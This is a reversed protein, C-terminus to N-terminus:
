SLHEVEPDQSLRGKAEQDLKINYRKLKRTLTTINMGLLRAARRQRGGTEILASLILEAEFHQVEAALNASVESESSDQLSEIRALLARALVELARLQHSLSIESPLEVGNRSPDLERGVPMIMNETM